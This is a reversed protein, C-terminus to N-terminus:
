SLGSICTLFKVVVEDLVKVEFFSDGGEEEAGTKGWEGTGVFIAEGSAWFWTVFGSNKGNKGPLM